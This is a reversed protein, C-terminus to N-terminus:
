NESVGSQMMAAFRRAESEDCRAAPGAGSPPSGQGDRGLALYVKVLGVHVEPIESDRRLGERM